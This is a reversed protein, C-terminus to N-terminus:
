AGWGRDIMRYTTPYKLEGSSGYRIGGVEKVEPEAIHRRRSAGCIALLSYWLYKTASNITLLDPAPFRERHKKKNGEVKPTTPQMAHLLFLCNKRNRDYNRDRQARSNILM